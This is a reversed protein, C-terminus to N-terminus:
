FRSSLFNVVLADAERGREKMELRRHELEKGSLQEQFDDKASYQRARLMLGILTIKEVSLGDFFKTMAQKRRALPIESYGPTTEFEVIIATCALDFFFRDREPMKEAKAVLADELTRSQNEVLEREGALASFCMLPLLFLGASLKQPASIM